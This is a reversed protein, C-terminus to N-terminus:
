STIRSLSISAGVHLRHRGEPPGGDLARHHVGVGRRVDQDDMRRRGLADTEVDSFSRATTDVADGQEDSAVGQGNMELQSMRQELKEWRKDAQTKVSEIRRSEEELNIKTDEASKAITDELAGARTGRSDTADKLMATQSDM